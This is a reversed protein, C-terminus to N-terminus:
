RTYNIKYKIGDKELLIMAPDIETISMGSVQDGLTYIKGNLVAGYGKGDHQSIGTVQFQDSIDIAAQNPSSAVAFNKVGTVGKIADIEKILEQMQDTM